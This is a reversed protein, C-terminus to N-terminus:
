HASGQCAGLFSRYIFLVQQHDQESSCLGQIAIAVRHKMATVSQPATAFALGVCRIRLCLRTSGLAILGSAESTDSPLWLIMFRLVSSNVLSMCGIVGCVTM